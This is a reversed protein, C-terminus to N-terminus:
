TGLRHAFGRAICADALAKHDGVDLARAIFDIAVSLDAFPPEIMKKTDNVSEEHDRQMVRDRWEEISSFVETRPWEPSNERRGSWTLHVVAYGLGPIEFLVDDRDSRAAAAALPRGALVHGPPLEQAVEADLQARREPSVAHWPELHDTFGKV